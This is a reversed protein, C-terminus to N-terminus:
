TKIMCINYVVQLTKIKNKWDLEKIKNRLYTRLDGDMAYQLVIYYTGTSHDLCTSITNNRNLQWVILKIIIIYKIFKGLGAGYFKIINKHDNVACLNQLQLKM